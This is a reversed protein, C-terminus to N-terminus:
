FNLSPCFINILFCIPSFLRYKFVMSTEQWVKILPCMWLVQLINCNVMNEMILIYSLEWTKRPAKDMYSVSRKKERIYNKYIDIYSPKTKWLHVSSIGYLLKMICWMSSNHKPDVNKLPAPSPKSEQHHIPILYNTLARIYKDNKKVFIILARKVWRNQKKM